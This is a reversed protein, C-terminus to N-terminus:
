ARLGAGSRRRPLHHARREPLHAADLSRAARAVKQAVGGCPRGTCVALRVGAERVRDAADWVCDKVTGSSGILTGDIDLLILPIM